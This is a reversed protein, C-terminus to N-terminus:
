LGDWYLLRGDPLQAVAMAAPKCKPAPDQAVCTHGAPDQFLPGFAGTAAPGSDAASATPLTATAPGVAGVVALALLASGIRAM